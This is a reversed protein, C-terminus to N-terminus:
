GESERYKDIIDLAMCLGYRISKGNGRGGIENPRAKQEIEARIKDLVSEQKINSTVRDFSDIIRNAEDNTPLFDLTNYVDYVFDERADDLSWVKSEQELAKIAMDLAKSIYIARPEDMKHIIKHEKIRTIAEERTM